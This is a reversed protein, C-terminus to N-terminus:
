DDDDEWEFESNCDGDNEEDCTSSSTWQKSNTGSNEPCLCAETCGLSNKQCWCTNTRYGTTCKCTM